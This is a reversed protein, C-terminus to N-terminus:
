GKDEGLKVSIEYSEVQRNAARLLKLKVTDGVKYKALETRLSAYSTIEEGNVATILDGVAAKTGKLSSGEEITYILFGRYYSDAYTQGTIGLSVRGSVYGKEALEDIITKAENIPISFGLGEYGSAVIKASNVAIVQGASNFLPGGSNGPNIAADVQFCKIAYGTDDYVDRALGSLIGQTATFGLGGANGLAIVRDGLMMKTSDGFEAPRLGEADIKIVALDTTEDGGVVTAGEYVTGDYLTVDVRSFPKNTSENIVCHCNTIIYGDASWIIGSASGAPVLKGSSAQGFPFNSTGTSNYVTLLVTSDLNRNVIERTTLGGDAASDDVIEISPANANTTSTTKETTTTDGIGAPTANGGVLAIVAVLAVVVVLAICSIVVTVGNGGKRPPPTYPAQQWGYTAYPQQVPQPAPQPIPQPAPQPAPAPPTPPTEVPTPTPQPIPETAPATPQEPTENAGNQLSNWEDM